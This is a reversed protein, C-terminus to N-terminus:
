KGPQDPLAYMPEPGPHYGPYGHTPHVHHSPHLPAHPPQPLRPRPPYSGYEHYDPGPPAAGPNPVAQASNNIGGPGGFPALKQISGDQPM